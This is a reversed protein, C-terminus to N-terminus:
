KSETESDPTGRAKVNGRSKIYAILFQILLQFDTISSRKERYELELTQNLSPRSTRNPTWSKGLKLVAFNFLGPKVQFYQQWVPEEFDVAHIEMPRPGVLTLDGKLLNILLPLHDFSLDRILAGVRTLRKEAGRESRDTFMTCFRFLSFVKGRQGVMPQSYLVSGSSELKILLAIVLMLPATLLLWALAFVVDIGRKM